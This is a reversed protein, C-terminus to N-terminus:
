VLEDVFAIAPLLLDYVESKLFAQASEHSYPDCARILEGVTVSRSLFMPHNSMNANCVSPPHQHATRFSM